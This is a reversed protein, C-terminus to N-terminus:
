MGNTNNSSPICNALEEDDLEEPKIVAGSLLEVCRFTKATARNIVNEVLAPKEEALEGIDRSSGDASRNFKDELERVRQRSKAFEDNITTIVSEMIEIDDLLQQTVQQQSVLASELKAQNEAYQKIAAQSQQYYWYAVGAFATFAAFMILYVRIRAFM